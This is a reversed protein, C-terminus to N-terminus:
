ARRTVAIRRGPNDRPEARPEFPSTRLARRPTSRAHARRPAVTAEKDRREDRLSNTDRHQVADTADPCWERKNGQRPCTTTFGQPQTGESGLGWPKVALHVM